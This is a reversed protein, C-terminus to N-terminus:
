RPARAPRRLLASAPVALLTCAGILWFGDGYALASAQAAVERAVAVLSEAHATGALVANRLTIGGALVSQHFAERRDILTVLASSAVSGGLQLSLNVLATAKPVSPGQVAGVVSIMLPTNILALGVGTAVLPVAVLAFPTQTTTVQALAIDSVASLAFGAGVLLAPAVRRGAIMGVPITLLAIPIARVVLMVGSDTATYGLAGSLYQPMLFQQGFITFANLFMLGAGGAVARNKLIGLDVIPDRASRERLVFGILGAAALVCALRVNADALWDWREGQELVYQLAGVGLALLVVGPADFPLRRPPGPDRLLALLVAFALAGPALNVLFVWQWSAADTLVGGLLPGTSPGVIIGIMYLSQSLGFSAPPFTDRLIAQATAMLGGGFTGQM